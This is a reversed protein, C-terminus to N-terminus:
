VHFYSVFNNLVTRSRWEPDVAPTLCKPHTEQCRVEPVQFGPVRQSLFFLHTEEFGLKNWRDMAATAHIYVMHIGVQPPCCSGRSSSEESHLVPPQDSM